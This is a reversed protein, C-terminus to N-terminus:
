YVSLRDKINAYVSSGLVKRSVLESINQYSRNDIIKQATIPGIGPLKDLEDLTASNINIMNTINTEAINVAENIFPIYVKSGDTLKQAMNITKAIYMRDAKASLGGAPILADVIRSDNTLQYVGPKEVAGAVDVLIIKLKQETKVGKVEEGGTEITIEPQPTKVKPVVIGIVIFVVGLLGVVFPLYKKLDVGEM